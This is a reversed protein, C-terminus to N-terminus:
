SPLRTSESRSRRAMAATPRSFSTTRRRACLDGRGEIAEQGICPHTSGPVLRANYADIVQEEFARIRSMTRYLEVLERTM